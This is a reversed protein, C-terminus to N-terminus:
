RSSLEWLEKRLNKREEDIQKTREEIESWKMPPADLARNLFLTMEEKHLDTLRKAIENRRWETGTM